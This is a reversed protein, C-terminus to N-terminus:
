PAVDPGLEYAGDFEAVTMTKLDETVQALLGGDDDGFPVILTLLIRGTLADAIHVFDGGPEAPQGFLRHMGSLVGRMSRWKDPNTQLEVSYAEGARM